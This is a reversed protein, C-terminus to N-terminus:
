IANKNLFFSRTRSAYMKTNYLNVDINLIQISLMINYMICALRGAMFVIMGAMGAMMGIFVVWVMMSMPNLGNVVTAVEDIDEDDGDMDDFMESEVSSIHNGYPHAFLKRKAM